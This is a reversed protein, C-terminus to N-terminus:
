VQRWSCAWTFCLDCCNQYLLIETRYIIVDIMIHSIFSIILEWVEVTCGNFNPFPNIIEDCMECPMHNSM